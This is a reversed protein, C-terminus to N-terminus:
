RKPMASFLKFCEMNLTAMFTCRPQYSAVCSMVHGKEFHILVKESFEGPNSPDDLLFGLSSQSALRTAQKDTTKSMRFKSCMGFISQAAEVAKTKGLSINGYVLTAPVQGAIAHIKEYHACLMQAGLVLLAAPFNQKHVAKLAEILNQLASIANVGTASAVRCQLDLSPLGSAPVWCFPSEESTLFDGNEFHVDKSLVWVRRNGPQLGVVDVAQKYYQSTHESNEANGYFHEVKKM